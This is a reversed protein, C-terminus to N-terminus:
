GRNSELKELRPASKYDLINKARPPLNAILVSESWVHFVKRRTREDLCIMVVPPARARFFRPKIVVLKEYHISVLARSREFIHLSVETRTIERLSPFSSPQINSQGFQFYPM